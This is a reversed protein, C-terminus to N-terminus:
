FLVQDGLKNLKEWLYLRGYAAEMHTITTYHENSEDYLIYL